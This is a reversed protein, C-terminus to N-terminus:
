SIEICSVTMIELLNFDKEMVMTVQTVVGLLGVSVVAAEFLDPTTEKSVTIM